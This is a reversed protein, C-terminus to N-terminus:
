PVEPGVRWIWISLNGFANLQATVYDGESFANSLRAGRMLDPPVSINPDGPLNPYQRQVCPSLRATQGADVSVSWSCVELRDTDTLVATVALTDQINDLAIDLGDYGSSLFTRGGRRDPTWIRDYGYDLLKGADGWRDGSQQLGVLLTRAGRTAQVILCSTCLPVGQKKLVPDHFGLAGGKWGRLGPYGNDAFKDVLRCVPNGNALEGCATFFRESAIQLFYPYQSAFRFLTIQDQPTSYGGGAPHNYSTDTMGLQAARLNMRAVFDASNGAVHEAIAIAADNGSVMMMGHLLNWLSQKEGTALNMTSGGTNAANASVTVSDTYNVEGNLVAEVTLLLTMVKTVSAIGVSTFENAPMVDVITGGGIGYAQERHDDTLMARVKQTAGNQIKKHNGNTLLPRFGIDLGPGALRDKSSDGLQYPVYLVDLPPKHFDWVSLKPFGSSKLSVAAYASANVPLLALRTAPLQVPANGRRNLGSAGLGRLFAEGTNHVEWLQQSLDGSENKYAVVYDIREGGTTDGPVRVIHLLSDAAPNAIVNGNDQLGFLDGTAKNVGWVVIRINGNETIVPTVILFYNGSATTYSRHAITFQRGQVAEGYGHEDLKLFSGDSNLQWTSLWLQGDRIVGMIFPQAVQRSGNDPTLVHLRVNHGVINQDHDAVHQPTESGGALTWASLKVVSGTGVASVMRLDTGSTVSGGPVGGLSVFDSEIIPSGPNAIPPPPPTSPPATFQEGPAPPPPPPTCPPLALVRSAQLPGTDTDATATVIVIGGDTANTSNSTSGRQGPASASDQRQEGTDFLTQVTVRAVSHTNRTQWSADITHSAQTNCVPQATLELTMSPDPEHISVPEPEAVPPQSTGGDPGCAGLLCGLAIVSLSAFPPILQRM